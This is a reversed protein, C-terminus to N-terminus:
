GYEWMQKAIRKIADKLNKLAEVALGESKYFYNSESNILKDNADYLKIPEGLEYVIKKILVDKIALNKIFYYCEGLELKEYDIM